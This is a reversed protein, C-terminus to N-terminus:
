NVTDNGPIFNILKEKWDIEEETFVEEIDDPMLEEREKSQFFDHEQHQEVIKLYHPIFVHSMKKVFLIDRKNIIYIHDDSFHCLPQATVHEKGADFVPTMRICMPNDLMVFREDEEKLVAMVQEGSTLKLVVYLEDTM